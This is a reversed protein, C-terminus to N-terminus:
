MKTFQWKKYCNNYISCSQYKHSSLFYINHQPGFNPSPPFTNFIYLTCTEGSYTRHVKDSGSYLCPSLTTSAAYFQMWSNNEPCTIMKEYFIGSFSICPPEFIVPVSKKKLGYNGFV